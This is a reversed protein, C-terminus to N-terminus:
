ASPPSKIQLNNIVRVVGSVRRAESQADASVQANPVEGALTVVGNTVNIDINLINSFREATLKATVAAHITTDDIQRGASQTTSCAAVFLALTMSVGLTLIGRTRRNM